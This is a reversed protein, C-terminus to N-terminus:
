WSSYHLKFQFSVHQSELTKLACHGPSRWVHMTANNYCQQLDGDEGLQLSLKYKLDDTIQPTTLDTPAAPALKQRRSSDARPHESNKGGCDSAM